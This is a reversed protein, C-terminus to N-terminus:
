RTGFTVHKKYESLYSAYFSPRKENIADLENMLEKRAKDLLDNYKNDPFTNRMKRAIERIRVVNEEIESYDIMANNKYIFEDYFLRFASFKEKM